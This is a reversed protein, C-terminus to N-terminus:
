ENKKTTKLTEFEKLINRFVENVQDETPDCFITSIIISSGKKLKLEIKM